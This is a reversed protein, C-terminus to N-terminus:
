EEDTERYLREPPIIRMTEPHYHSGLSISFGADLLQQALGPGKRFGHIIFEQGETRHQMYPKAEAMMEAWLRVCHIIVPKGLRQAEQLAARFAERQQPLPTNCIGDLGCEGVAVFHPDGSCQEVVRRFEGVSADGLHWPHLQISYYQQEDDPLGLNRIVIPEVGEAEVSLISGKRNPIHTHIDNFRDFLKEATKFSSAARVRCM